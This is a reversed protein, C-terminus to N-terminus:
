KDKPPLLGLRNAIINDLWRRPLLRPLIWGMLRHKLIVYHTKPKKSKLARHIIKSVNEVPIADHVSGSLLGEKLHSMIEAYDTDSYDPLDRAKNWLPTNTNGPEIIIVDIGYLMLERRLSESLSELAHKSAAYPGIFPYSIRGSVSSINIIRGPKLTNNKRAGLLPLFERTVNMVGHVNVDLQYQLDDYSIHMLPGGVVTGANNILGSLLSDALITKVKVAAAAIAKRDCVDFLLPTFNEGQTEKLMDFDKRQRVSGFVHYGRALLEEATGLGIGSSVGTILVYNM